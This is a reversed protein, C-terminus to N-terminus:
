RDGLSHAAAVVDLGDPQPALVELASRRRSGVGGQPEGGVFGPRPRGLLLTWPLHEARVADALQDGDHKEVSVGLLGPRRGLTLGQGGADPPCSASARCCVWGASAM